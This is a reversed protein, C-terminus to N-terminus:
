RLTMLYKVVLKIEQDDMHPHPMLNPDGRFAKTNKAVHEEPDQLQETLFRQSRRSGIGDLPVGEKCGAGRISHCAACDYMKYLTKGQLVAKGQRGTKKAHQGSTPSPTRVNISKHMSAPSVSSEEAFALPGQLAALVSVLLAHIYKKM